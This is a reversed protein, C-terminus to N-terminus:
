LLINVKEGKIDYHKTRKKARYFQNIVIPNKVNSLQIQEFTINRAYGSGGQLYFIKVHFITVIYNSIM